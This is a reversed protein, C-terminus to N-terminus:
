GAARRPGRAVTRRASRGPAARPLSLRRLTSPTARSAPTPGGLVEGVQGTAGVQDGPGVRPSPKKEASCSTRAPARTNMVPRLGFRSSPPARRAAGASRPHRRGPRSAGARCWCGRNPARPRPSPRRERAPEVPQQEVGPMTCGGFSRSVVASPWSSTKAVFTSPWKASAPSSSVASAAADPRITQTPLM